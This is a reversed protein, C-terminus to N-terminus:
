LLHWDSIQVVRSPLDRFCCLRVGSSEVAARVRPDCLAHLEQAREAVYMSDLGDDATGPHCGLETIGAPLTQILRVLADARIAEPAPPDAALPHRRHSAFM